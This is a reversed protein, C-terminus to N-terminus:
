RAQALTAPYATGLSCGGGTAVNLVAQRRHAIAPYNGGGHVHKFLTVAADLRYGARCALLAGLVDAELEHEASSGSHGLYYHAIEHGALLAFQEPNLETMAASSFQIHSGSSWANVRGSTRISFRPFCPTVTGDPNYATCDPKGPGAVLAAIRLYDHEDPLEPAQFQRTLALGGLLLIATFEM